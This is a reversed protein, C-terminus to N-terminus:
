IGKIKKYHRFLRATCAEDLDWFDFGFWTFYGNRDYKFDLSALLAWEEFEKKDIM